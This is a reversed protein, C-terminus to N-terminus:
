GECDEVIYSGKEFVNNFKKDRFGVEIWCLMLFVFFFVFVIWMVFSDWSRRNGVIVEMNDFSVLM